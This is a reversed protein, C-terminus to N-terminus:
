VWYQARICRTYVCTSSWAAVAAAVVAAAAIRSRPSHLCQTHRVEVQEELLCFYVCLCPRRCSEASTRHSRLCPKSKSLPGTHDPLEVGVTSGRAPYLGGRWVPQKITQHQQCPLSPQTKARGQARDERENSFFGQAPDVIPKWRNGKVPAHGSYWHKNM